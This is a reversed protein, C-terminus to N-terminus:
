SDHCPWRIIQRFRLGNDPRSRNRPSTRFCRRTGRLDSVIRKSRMLGAYKKETSIRRRVSAQRAVFTQLRCVEEGSRAIFAKRADTFKLAKM